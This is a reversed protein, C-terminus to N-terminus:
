PSLNPPHGGKGRGKTLVLPPTNLYEVLYWREGVLPYREGLLLYIPGVWLLDCDILM